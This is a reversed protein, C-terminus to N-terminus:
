RQDQRFLRTSEIQAVEIEIIKKGSTLIETASMELRWM